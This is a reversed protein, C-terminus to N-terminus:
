GATESELVPAVQREIEDDHVEGARVVVSRLTAGSRSLAREVGVWTGEQAYYGTAISSYNRQGQDLLFREFQSPAATAILIAVFAVAALAVAVFALGLRLSLTKRIYAKM